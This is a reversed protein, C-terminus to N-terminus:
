PQGGSEGDRERVDAVGEPDIRLSHRAQRKIGPRDACATVCGNVTVVLDADEEPAAWLLDKGAGTRIGQAIRSREVAPNCGGCFKIRLRPSSGGPSAKKHAQAFARVRELAEQAM